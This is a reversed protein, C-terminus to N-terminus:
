LLEAVSVNAIVISGIPMLYAMEIMLFLFLSDASHLEGVNQPWYLEKEMPDLCCTAISIRIAAIENTLLDIKLM